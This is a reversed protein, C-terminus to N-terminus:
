RPVLLRLQVSRLEYGRHDSRDISHGRSGVQVFGLLREATTYAIKIAVRKCLLHFGISFCLLSTNDDAYVNICERSITYNRSPKRFEMGRICSLPQDNVHM